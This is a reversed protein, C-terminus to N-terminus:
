SQEFRKFAHDEVLQSDGRCAPPLSLLSTTASSNLAKRAGIYTSFVFIFYTCGFCKCNSLSPPGGVCACESSFKGMLVGSSSSMRLLPSAWGPTLWSMDSVMFKENFLEVTMVQTPRSFSVTLYDM